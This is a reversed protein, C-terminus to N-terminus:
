LGTTYSVSVTFGSSVTHSTSFTGASWLVGGTSDITSSAGSGYAIFAGTLTGSGTISFSAPSSFVKLGSAAAGFPATPRPAAYTPANTGGAELWGPHSSMTDTANVGSFSSGSILGVFPGTVTYASGALAADLMLNKGVTTVVNRIEERWRLAGDADRCEVVYEGHARARDDFATAPLPSQALILLLVFLRRSV